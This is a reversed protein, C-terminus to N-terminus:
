VRVSSKLLAGRGEWAMVSQQPTWVRGESPLLYSMEQDTVTYFIAASQSPKDLPMKVVWFLM